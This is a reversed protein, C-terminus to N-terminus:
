KKRGYQVGEIIDWILVVVSLLMAIVALANFGNKVSLALNSLFICLLAVSKIYKVM